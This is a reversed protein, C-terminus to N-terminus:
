LLLLVVGLADGAYHFGQGIGKEILVSSDLLTPPAHALFPVFQHM